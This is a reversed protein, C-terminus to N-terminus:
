EELTTGEIASATVPQLTKNSFLNQLQYNNNGTQKFRWTMCKWNQAPYGVIPTGNKSNADQIRLLLGTHVNKIAYNGTIAQAFTTITILLITIFLVIKKM